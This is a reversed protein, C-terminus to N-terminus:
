LCNGCLLFLKSVFYKGSLLTLLEDAASALDRAGGDGGGAADRGGDGAEELCALLKVGPDLLLWSQSASVTAGACFTLM